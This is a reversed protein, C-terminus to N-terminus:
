IIPSKYSSRDFDLFSGLQKQGPGLYFGGMPWFTLEGVYIRGHNSYFLDVRVCKFGDGVREAVSIMEDWGHPKVFSNGPPYKPHLPIKLDLGTPDLIQENVGSERGSIYHVFRVRGDVVYFKYDAPPNDNEPDIFAEVMVKPKVLAYGWQASKVGYARQLAANLKEKAASHDLQTKDRVLIYSGSDHNAKIVFSSPLTEFDIQAFEEHTQYLEVLYDKGVRELVRERVAIKDVCRVIEPDQDFLKLWQIKDNFDRCEVLEPFDEFKKWFALHIRIYLKRHRKTLPLHKQDIRWKARIRPRLWLSALNKQLRKFSLPSDKAVKPIM